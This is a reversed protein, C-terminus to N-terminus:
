ILSEPHFPKYGRVDAPTVTEPRRVILNWATVSWGYGIPRDVELLLGPDLFKYSLRTDVSGSAPWAMM